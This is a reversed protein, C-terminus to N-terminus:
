RPSGLGFVQVGLQAFREPASVIARYNAQGLQLTNEQDPHRKSLASGVEAMHAHNFVVLSKVDLGEFIVLVCLDCGNGRFDVLHGNVWPGLPNALYRVQVRRGETGSLRFSSSAPLSYCM